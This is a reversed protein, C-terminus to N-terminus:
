AHFYHAVRTVSTGWHYIWRRGRPHFNNLCVIKMGISVGYGVINFVTPQYKTHLWM